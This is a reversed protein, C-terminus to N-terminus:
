APNVKFRLVTKLKDPAVKRPDSIYIERHTKSARVLQQEQAFVEMLDFSKTENDYPGVHMMQVCQGEAIHEFKVQDLLENPKTKRTHDLIKMAYAEDVFDPQRIMLTFVLENKDLTGSYTEKAEESVDWVGELPYVTYEFYGVPAMAKKPSM